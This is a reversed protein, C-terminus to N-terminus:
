WRFNKILKSCPGLMKMKCQAGLDYQQDQKHIDKLFMEM